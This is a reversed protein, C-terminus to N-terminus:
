AHSEGAELRERREHRKEDWADEQQAAYEAAAHELAAPTLEEVEADTLSIEGDISVFQVGDMSACWGPNNWTRREAPCVRYFVEGDIEVDGRTLTWPMSYAGM